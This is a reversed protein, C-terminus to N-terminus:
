AQISVPLRCGGASAVGPEVLGERLYTGLISGPRFGGRAFPETAFSGGQRWGLWLAGVATDGRGSPSLDASVAVRLTTSVAGPSPDWRVSDAIGGGAGERHSLGRGRFRLWWGVGRQM